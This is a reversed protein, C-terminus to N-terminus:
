NEPIFTTSGSKKISGDDNFEIMQGKKVSDGIEEPSTIFQVPSNLGGARKLHKPNIRRIMKELELPSISMVWWKVGAHEIPHDLPTVEEDVNFGMIGYLKLSKRDAYTFIIPKDYLEPYGDTAASIRALLTDFLVIFVDHNMVGPNISYTRLEAIMGTQHDMPRKLFPIGLTKEMPLIESAHAELDKSNYGAWTIALTGAIKPATEDSRDEVYIYDSRGKSEEGIQYRSKLFEKPWDRKESFRRNAFSITKKTFEANPAHEGDSTLFSIWKACLKGQSEAKSEVFPSNVLAHPNTLRVEASALLSMQFIFTFLFRFFMHTKFTSSEHEDLDFLKM